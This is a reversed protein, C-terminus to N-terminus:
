TELQPQSPATKIYAIVFLGGWVLDILSFRFTSVPVAGQSHLMLVPVVFILKELISALMLPRFRAPDSAIMVFIIQMVLAVGIFGYFYEPHTVPPPADRGIRERLFYLPLLIVFGWLAALRFIIKALRM